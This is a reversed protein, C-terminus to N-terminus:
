KKNKKALAARIQSITLTGRAHQSKDLNMIRSLQTAAALADHLKIKITGDAEATLEKLLHLVGREFGQRLNIKPPGWDSIELFDELSGRMISALTGLVEDTEIQAEAIRASIREAVKLKRSNQSGIEALTKDDGEYGAERAAQTQNGTRLYAEIYKEQKLTLKRETEAASAVDPSPRATRKSSRAKKPTAAADSKKVTRYGSKKAAPKKQPL